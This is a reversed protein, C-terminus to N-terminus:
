TASRYQEQWERMRTHLIENEERLRDVEAILDHVDEALQEHCSAAEVIEERREDTMPKADAM